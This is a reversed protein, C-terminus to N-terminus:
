AQITGRRNLRVGFFAWASLAGLVWGTPEPVQSLTLTARSDIQKALDVTFASGDSLIGTLIQNRTALTIKQGPALADIPVGDLYFARGSYNITSLYSAYIRQNLTGGYFNGIAGPDLSFVYNLAGGRINAVSGNGIVSNYGLMGGYMNFTGSRNILLTPYVDGTMPHGITGDHLDVVTNGDARISRVAGGGRIAVTADKALIGGVEGGAVNVKSDAFASIGSLSGDYINVTSGSNARVLHISSGGHINLEANVGLGSPEGVEFVSPLSGGALLNLQTSSGIGSPAPDTPVNIVTTFQATVVHAQVLTLVLAMGLTRTLRM